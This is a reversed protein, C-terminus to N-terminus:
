SNGFNPDAGCQLLLHVIAAEKRLVALYLPSRGQQPVNIELLLDPDVALKDYRCFDILHMIGKYHQYNRFDHQPETIEQPQEPETM